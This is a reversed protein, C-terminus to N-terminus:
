TSGIKRLLNVLRKGKALYLNHMCIINKRNFECKSVGFFRLRMYPTLELIEGYKGQILPMKLRHVQNFYSM